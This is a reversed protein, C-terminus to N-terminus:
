ILKYERAALSLTNNWRSLTLFAQKTGADDIRGARRQLRKFAMSVVTSMDLQTASIDATNKSDRLMCYWAYFYFADNPDTDPLLEDRIFRQMGGLMEAKTEPSPHVACQAMARYIWALRTGPVKEPLLMSECQAFGSRWDPQETFLFNGEPEERASSLFDDALAVAKQYDAAFYAAEIAFIKEDPGESAASNEASSVRGLFIETRAIWAQITGAMAPPQLVPAAADAAAANDAGPSRETRLSEFIELADAYRGTEFNIRGRLFGARMRWPSQGLTKEARLALREARSLNGYLFNIAAAFYCTIVLEEAQETKEAQELAFSIYELADDIRKKSLNVLSFARYVPVANHGLDRNLHMAKRVADSAAEINRSGTNFAALNAQVQARYAGYCAKKEDVAAPSVPEQFGRQIEDREGWVLDRTTKY